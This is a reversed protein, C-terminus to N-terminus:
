KNCLFFPRRKYPYIQLRLLRGDVVNLKIVGVRGKDNKMAKPKIVRLLSMTEPARLCM